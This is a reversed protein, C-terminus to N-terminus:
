HVHKKLEEFFNEFDGSDRHLILNAEPDNFLLTFYENDEFDSFRFAKLEKWQFNHKNGAVSGKRRRQEVIICDDTLEIQYAGSLSTYFLLGTVVSPLFLLLFWPVILVVSRQVLNNWDLLWSHLAVIMLVNLTITVMLIIAFWQYAGPRHARFEFTM